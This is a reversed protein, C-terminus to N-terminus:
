VTPVAAARRRVQLGRDLGATVDGHKEPETPAAQQGDGCSRRVPLHSYQTGFVNALCGTSQVDARMLIALHEPNKSLLVLYRTDRQLRDESRSVFAGHSGRGISHRSVQEIVSPNSVRGLMWRERWYDALKDTVEKPNRRAYIYRPTSSVDQLFSQYNSVLPVGYVIRELSHKLMQNAPLGAIMMAERMKRMLPSVGEGFISNVLRGGSRRSVLINALEVTRPSIHFSGYGESVGLREFRLGSGKGLVGEPVSLRNYQSPNRSYLSSTTMYVLSNDRIVTRGAVSSAIISAAKSYKRRYYSVVEPGCSVLGVLKGGLIHNYPAIAGCVNLDVVNSALHKAAVLRVTKSVLAKLSASSYDLDSGSEVQRWCLDLQNRAKVLSALQSSRKSTFLPTEAQKKWEADELCTAKAKRRPPFKRHLNRQTAAYEMLEDPTDLARGDGLVGCKALDDKYIQALATEIVKDIWDLLGVQDDRYRSLIAAPTWGIRTDRPIQKIVPSGLGSIGIVPHNNVARDRILLAVNRGPLSSYRISWTHRFYRWIDFLDLGTFQCRRGREAFEIYPSVVNKAVSLRRSAPADNLDTLSAALEHGDRVLSHVSHWEGNHLRRAEMRRVFTQVSTQDLQRNRDYLHYERVRHKRETDSLGNVNPRTLTLSVDNIALGCGVSIHDITASLRFLDKMEDDSHATSMRRELCAIASELGGLENLRVVENWFHRGFHSADVEFTDAEQM